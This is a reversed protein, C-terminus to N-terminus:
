EYDEINRQSQPTQLIDGLGKMHELIGKLSDLDDGKKDFLGLHKGLLELAKNAGNANFRFLGTPRGDADLVEEAQMCRDAVTKLGMLVYDATIETREEREARAEAIAEEIDPKTLNEMGISRATKESYGARIAAQTANMDVLYEKVFRSQKPTLKKRADAM